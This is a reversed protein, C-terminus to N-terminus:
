EENLPLPQSDTSLDENIPLKLEIGTTFVVTIHRGASVEIAPSIQQMMSMYYQSLTSGVQSVGAGGGAYLAQSPSVTTTVGGLPTMTQTQGMAQGVTGIGQLFGSLAAKAAVSGSHTVVMGKIGAKADEGDIYGNVSIDIAKGSKLVCSMTTLRIKVRETSLDGFGTGGVMCSKINSRFSNPLQALNTLRILVPTPDSSANGGTNASLSGILIGKAFSGSPLYTAVNQSSDAKSTATNPTNKSKIAQIDNVVDPTSSIGSKDDNINDISANENNIDDEIVMKQPKYQKVQMTSETAKVTNLQALKENIKNAASESNLADQKYKFNESELQSLKELLQQNTKQQDGEFTTLHKELVEAATSKPLSVGSFDQEIAVEKPPVPIEKKDTSYILILVMILVIGGGILLHKRYRKIISNTNFHQQDM